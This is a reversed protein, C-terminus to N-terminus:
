NVSPSRPQTSASSEPTSTYLKTLQNEIEADLEPSNLVEDLQKEMKEAFDRTTRYIRTLAKRKAPQSFNIIEEMLAESASEIAGADFLSAFGFDDVGAEKAQEKCLSFLVNVLLIPDSAIRELTSTQPKGDPALTVINILDVDCEGLVRHATGVTLEINWKKKNKDEFSRM